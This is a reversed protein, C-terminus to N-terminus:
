ICLGFIENLDQEIDKWDKATAKGEIYDQMTKVLDKIEADSFSYEKRELEIKTTM